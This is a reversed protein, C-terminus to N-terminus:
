TTHEVYNVILFVRDTNGLGSASFTLVENTAGKIHLTIGESQGDKAPYVRAVAVSSTIFDLNITGASSESGISYSKVGIRKGSTPTLVTVAAISGSSATYEVTTTMIHDSIDVSLAGHEAKLDAGEGDVVIVYTAGDRSLKVWSDGDWEFKEDTDSAVFVADVVVGTTPKTDTSLGRYTVPASM